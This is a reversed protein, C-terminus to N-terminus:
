VANVQPPIPLYEGWARKVMWEQESSGDNVTKCTHGDMNIRSAGWGWQVGELDSVGSGPVLM